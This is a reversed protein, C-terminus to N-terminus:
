DFLAGTKAATIKLDTFISEFQAMIIEPRTPEIAQVGLTNQATIGTIVTAAYVKQNHFTKLDANIGAGGSSDIGAITLVQPVEIM